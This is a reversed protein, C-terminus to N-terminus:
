TITSSKSTAKGNMAIICKSKANIERTNFPRVRVAVKVSSMESFCLYFIDIRTLGDILYLQFQRYFVHISDYNKFNM